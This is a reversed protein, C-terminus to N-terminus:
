KAQKVRMCKDLRLTRKVCVNPECCHFFGFKCRVCRRGAYRKVFQVTANGDNPGLHLTDFRDDNSAFMNTDDDDDGCSAILFLGCTIAVIFIVNSNM